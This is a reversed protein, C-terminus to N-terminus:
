RWTAGRFGMATLYPEEAMALQWPGSPTSGFLSGGNYGGRFGNARGQQM